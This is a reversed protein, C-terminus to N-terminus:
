THHRLVNTVRYIEALEARPVKLGASSASIRRTVLRTLHRM